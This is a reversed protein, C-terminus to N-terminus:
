EALFMFSPESPLSEESNKFSGKLTIDGSGKLTVFGDKKIHLGIDTHASPSMTGYVFDQTTFNSEQRGGVALTKANFTKTAVVDASKTDITVDDSASPVGLPSWNSSDEWSAADGGGSWQKEAAYVPMSILSTLWGCIVFIWPRNKVSTIM